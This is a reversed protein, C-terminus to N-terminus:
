LLRCDVICCRVLATNPMLRPKVAYLGIDKGSIDFKAHIQARFMLGHNQELLFLLLYKVVGLPEM